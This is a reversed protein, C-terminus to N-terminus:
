TCDLNKDDDGDKWLIRRFTVYDTLYKTILAEKM